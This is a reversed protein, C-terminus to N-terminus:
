VSFRVTREFNCCISHIQCKEFASGEVIEIRHMPFKQGTYPSNRNQTAATEFTPLWCLISKTIALDTVMSASVVVFLFTLGIIAPVHVGRQMASVLGSNRCELCLSKKDSFQKVDTTIHLQFIAHLSRIKFTHLTCCVKVVSGEGALLQRCLPLPTSDQYKLQNM